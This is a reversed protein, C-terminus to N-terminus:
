HSLFSSVTTSLSARFLNRQLFQNRHTQRLPFRSSAPPVFSFLLSPPFPLSCILVSQSCRRPWATRKSPRSLIFIIIFYKLIFLLIILYFLIFGAMRWSMAWKAETEEKVRGVTECADDSRTEGQKLKGDMWDTNKTM